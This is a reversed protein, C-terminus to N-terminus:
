QVAVKFPAKDFPADKLREKESPSLILCEIEEATFIISLDTDPNEWFSWDSYQNNPLWPHYKGPYNCIRIFVEEGAEFDVGRGHLDPATKSIPSKVRVKM